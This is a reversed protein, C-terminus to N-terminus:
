LMTLIPTYMVAWCERNAERGQWNVQSGEKDAFAVVAMRWLILQSNTFLGTKDMARSCIQWDCKHRNNKTKGVGRNSIRDGIASGNGVAM